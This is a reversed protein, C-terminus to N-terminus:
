AQAPDFGKPMYLRHGALLETDRLIEATPGDAAIRGGDLIVARPCLELAYPLDHTVVLLTIDLGALVDTLERRAAPDLNATPEDLVLVDPRTALVTAVAVRRRQGFSLHHPTSGRQAAMGVADLAADVRADLDAGRLGAHAPGFAVDDRVTSMFLQDDPDQFVIGVRRRIDPLHAPAVTTGGIAVSGQQPRHIGNLHLVLTSKGAGNPGLIAVREGRAVSLDVGALAVRGDPYAFRLGQVSVAPVAPESGLAAPDDAPSTVAPEAAASTAAPEDTSGAITLAPPETM